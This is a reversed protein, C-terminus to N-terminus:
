DDGMTEVDDASTNVMEGQGIIRPEKGDNENEDKEGDVDEEEDKNEDEEEDDEM